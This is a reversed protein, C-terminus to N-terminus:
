QDDIHDVEMESFWDDLYLMAVIRHVYFNKKKGNIWFQARRYLNCRGKNLWTYKLEGTKISYLDGNPAVYYGHFIKNKIDVRSNISDM